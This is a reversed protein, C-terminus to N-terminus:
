FRFGVSLVASRGQGPVAHGGGLSDLYDEDAINYVNLQASITETVDWSAMADFTWYADARRTNITNAFRSDVFQTGAGLEFRDLFRYSTWLSFSNRPTNPLERGVEAPNVSDTIESDLFTYGAFITWERTINGTVGLEFGQVRQEGTLTIISTLPDTTRANTKDTRFIATSVLLHGDLMDWKAGAEWTESEEPPLNQNAATLTLGESSPNFSTGYSVYLSADRAPHWVAGIRGSLKSGSDEFDGIQAHAASIQDYRTTYDDWRLGGTLEFHEGFKVTDFAYLALTSSLAENFAGTRVVPSGPDRNPDPDDWPTAPPAVAQARLYNIENERVVEVGLLLGHRVFGEGLNAILNTQSTFNEDVQDRSQLESRITTAGTNFRPATVVSDRDVTVFRFTQTFTWDDNLDHELRVTGIDTSTKEYDRRRVGYWTDFDVPAIQDFLPALTPSATNPIWPLGYDPTNDQDLKYWSLVLRTPTGIGLALTPAIGWRQQDPGDRGPTDQTHFMMNVRLAAGEIWGELPQNLDLTVRGYSDTGGGLNSAVYRELQPQKSVQNIIGGTSGRGSQASAPGKVVEVSNLNFSDRFYGGLDRVGDVFIDTRANFGRLTLNDGNPVGGEGAQMSIGPVNRLVDRLTTANRQEIIERPVVTVTQPAGVLKGIRPDASTEDESAATVTVGSVVTIGDPATEMAEGSDLAAEAFAAPAFLAAAASALGIRAIATKASARIGRTTSSTM